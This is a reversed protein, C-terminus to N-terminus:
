RPTAAAARERIRQAVEASTRDLETIADIASMRARGVAPSAIAAAGDAFRVYEQWAVRADARRDPMRELTSAVGHLARATWRADNAARAVELCAQYGQLAAALDGDIREVEAIHCVAEPRAPQLQAAQRFATIASGRDGASMAVIGRGVHGLYEASAPPAQAEVRSAVVLSAALVIVALAVRHM